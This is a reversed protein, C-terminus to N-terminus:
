EVPAPLVLTVRAPEQQRTNGYAQLLVYGYAAEGEEPLDFAVRVTCSAGTPVVDGCANEAITAMGNLASAAFSLEALDTEGTSTLTFTATSDGNDVGTLTYNAGVVHATITRTTSSGRTRCCVNSSKGTLTASYDGGLDALFAVAAVCSRAGPCADANVTFEPDGGLVVGLLPSGASIAYDNEYLAGPQLASWDNAVSITVRSTFYYATGAAFASGTVFALMILLRKM